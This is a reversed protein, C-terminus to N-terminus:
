ACRIDPIRGQETRAWLANCGEEEFKEQEQDDHRGAERQQKKNKNKKKNTRNIKKGGIEEGIEVEGKM